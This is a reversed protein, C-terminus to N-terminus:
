YTVQLDMLGKKYTKKLQYFICQSLFLDGNEGEPINSECYIYIGRKFVPETENNIVSLTGKHDYLNNVLHLTDGLKREGEQFEYAAECMRTYRDM